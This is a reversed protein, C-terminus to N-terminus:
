GEKAQEVRKKFLYIKSEEGKVLRVINSRHKYIVFSSIVSILICQPLNGMGPNGLIPFWVAM